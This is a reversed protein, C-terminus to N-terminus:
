GRFSESCKFHNGYLFTSNDQRMLTKKKKKDEEICLKFQVSMLFLEIAFHTLCLQVDRQLSFCITSSKDM